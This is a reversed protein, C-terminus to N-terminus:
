YFSLLLVTRKGTEKLKRTMPKKGELPTVKATKGGGGPRALMKDELVYERPADAGGLATM